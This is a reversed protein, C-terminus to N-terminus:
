DTHRRIVYVPHDERLLPNGTMGCWVGIDIGAASDAAIVALTEGAALARVRARIGTILRGCGADGADWVANVSRIEQQGM